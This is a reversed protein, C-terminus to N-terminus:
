FLLRSGLSKSGTPKPYVDVPTSSVFALLVGVEGLLVLVGEALDLLLGFDAFDLSPGVKDGAGDVDCRGDAIGDSDEAGDVDEAGDYAGDSDEAGLVLECGLIVM